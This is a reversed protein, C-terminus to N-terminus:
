LGFSHDIGSRALKAALLDLSDPGAGFISDLISGLTRFAPLVLTTMPLRKHFLIAPIHYVLVNTNPM